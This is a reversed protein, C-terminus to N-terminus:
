IQFLDNIQSNLIELWENQQILIFNTDKISKACLKVFNEIKM